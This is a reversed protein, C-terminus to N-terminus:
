TFLIVSLFLSNSDLSWLGIYCLGLLLLILHLISLFVKLSNILFPPTGQSFVAAVRVARVSHVNRQNEPNRSWCSGLVRSIYCILGLSCTSQMDEWKEVVTNGSIRHAHRQCKRQTSQYKCSMLGCPSKGRLFWWFIKHTVKKGKLLYFWSM